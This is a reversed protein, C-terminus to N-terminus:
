AAAPRLLRSVTNLLDDIAFPKVLFADAHCLAARRAAAPDSSMVAVPLTPDLAALQRRLECGDMGPMQVDTIVLDPRLRAVAELAERGDVALSVLYDESELAIQVADRVSRHDDVVLIHATM